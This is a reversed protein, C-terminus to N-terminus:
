SVTDAQVQAFGTTPLLSGTAIVTAPILLLHLSSFHHLVLTFIYM